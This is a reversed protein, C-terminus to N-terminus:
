MDKWTLIDKIEAIDADYETKSVYNRLAASIENVTNNLRNVSEQTAKSNLAEELGNIKGQEIELISLKGTSDVNLENEDVSSIFLINSIKEYLDDTLNNESLGKINDANKNLWEELGLVNDANVSGSIGLNDNEDIVLKALKKQDDPSLLTYGEISDVKNNLTDQLGTIKNISLDNLVLQKNDNITFDNSVSKIIIEDKTAYNTLDVEWSGVKELIGDIIIYEDYKDDEYQLGTPIMYIYLHADEATLDVEDKNNVIKRQLHDAGAVAVAIAEDVETKKYIESTNAKTNLLAELEELEKHLGSAEITDSAPVGVLNTLKDVQNVLGNEGNVTGQLTNIVSGIDTISNELITIEAELNDTIENNPEYWSLILGNETEEVKPELGAKFGETLVYKSEELINGAADKVAPIYAYYNTGYNKLQIINNLVEISLNDGELNVVPENNEIYDQILEAVQAPTKAVWNDTAGDKVLFSGSEANSVDVDSLEDLTSFVYNTEGGSIIKEGMYLSGASSEDDSYIFYLTNSDISGKELLAQYAALTGRQFRVYNIAM